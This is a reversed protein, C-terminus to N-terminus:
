ITKDAIRVERCFFELSQLKEIGVHRQCVKGVVACTIIELIDPRREGGPVLHSPIHRFPLEPM